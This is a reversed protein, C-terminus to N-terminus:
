PQDEGYGYRLVTAGSALAEDIFKDHEYSGQTSRWPSWGSPHNKIWAKNRNAVVSGDPLDAARDDATM